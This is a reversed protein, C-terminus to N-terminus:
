LISTNKRFLRPLKWAGQRRAKDAMAVLLEAHTLQLDKEGADPDSWLDHWAWDFQRTNNKAWEVADAQIIELRPTQPMSPQVLRLVDSDREIITVSRVAPNALAGRACCGLGLGTILVDGSAKLMFNLHTDLEDPFDHMVLEGILHMTANTWRLLQTYSGAPLTVLRGGQRPVTQPASTRLKMVRWLGAEGAPIDDARAATLVAEKLTM